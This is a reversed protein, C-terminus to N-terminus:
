PTGGEGSGTEQLAEVAEQIAQFNNANLRRAMGQGRSVMVTPTGPVNLERGLRMNATVVEAHRDSKLCAEFADADLGLDEAYSIFQGAANASGSWRGQNQFLAMHYDWYRDQDGACRAARAALFAHPHANVLPFDYFVFKATGPEVYAFEIQPKVQMAFAACGPCQYDGFEVITIPAEADGLVVPTARQLLTTPDDLGEVDVPEAVASGLATSGISYGVVGIGVVAVVALIWYFKKMDSGGSAAERKNKAM